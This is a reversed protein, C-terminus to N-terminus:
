CVSRIAKVISDTNWKAIEDAADKVVSSIQKAGWPCIAVIPKDFDKKAIKIEKKIWKSYTSYKGAMILVVHTPSIKRKIAEYLETANDADHVPDNKPVSYNKYVFNPAADLMEVLKDYADGYTWSHSIFLNRTKLSPM